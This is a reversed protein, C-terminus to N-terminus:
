IVEELVDNAGSEVRILCSSNWEVGNSVIRLDLKVWAIDDIPQPIRWYQTHAISEGPEIRDNQTFVRLLKMSEETLDDRVIFLESFSGVRQVTHKTAGITELSSRSTAMCTKGVFVTGMVDLELKQEYTRGKRYNRYTWVGGILVATFKIVKDAVDLAFSATPHTTNDIM